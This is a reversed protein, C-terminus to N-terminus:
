QGLQDWIRRARKALAEKCREVEGKRNELNENAIASVDDLNYLYVNELDDVSKEIDRPMAVDILFLPRAPRKDLATGVTDCTMVPEESSTSSVVVDFLHLSDRFSEFGLTAGDVGTALERAKDFTRGTVTISRNGRSHFATLATEAVEGAGVVLLRSAAVDGFIRRTLECIVNGLNVQGRSIGTHTRAWKAAQFSKQFVRNLTKGASKRRLADDYADKVQGLIETEGVMQSDIGSAVEFVHRVVEEGERQYFHRDMFEADLERFEGLYERVTRLPSAGNGTGYIETRNCTNLVLCEEMEPLARLGEYFSEMSDAPLSIREREELSAVRHSSGLLFLLEAEPPM